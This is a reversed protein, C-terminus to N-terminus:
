QADYKRNLEKDIFRSIDLLNGTMKKEKLKSCSAYTFIFSIALILYAARKM